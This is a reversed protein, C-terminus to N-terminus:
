KQIAEHPLVAHVGKVGNVIQTIRLDVVISALTYAEKREFEYLEQMLDLMGDLAIMCAEELDEHFGFIIWSNPTQARPMTLTKNKCLTFTLDVLDMPCEVAQTSIEGDGQAAHGDGVSFLGGSVPIPLYITSGAVLEKCDMNGGCFRPPITSHIGSKNPPMGMTGMFPSLSIMHNEQSTGLRQEVDLSWNLHYVEQDEIGLRKKVRSPGGAFSWGWSSPRIENINVQLVMGPEAGNIAIPGCLAHGQDRMSDKPEFVRRKQEKFPELGWLADLTAYRVTDGSNITLVPKFDKSFSGHLTEKSPNIYHIAM